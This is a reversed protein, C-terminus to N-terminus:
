CIILLMMACIVCHYQLELLFYRYQLYCVTKGLNNFMFSVLSAIYCSTDLGVLVIFSDYQNYKENILRGIKKAYGLDANDSDIIHDFEYIQYKVRCKSLFPPTV